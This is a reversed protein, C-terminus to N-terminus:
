AKKRAADQARAIALGEMFQVHKKRADAARKIEAPTAPRSLYDALNFPTKQSFNTLTAEM